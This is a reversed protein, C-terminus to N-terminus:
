EDGKVKLDLIHDAIRGLARLADKAEAVTDWSIREGRYCKVGDIWLAEAEDKKCVGGQTFVVYRKLM